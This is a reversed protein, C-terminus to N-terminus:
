AEVTSETGTTATLNVARQVPLHEIAQGFPWYTRTERRYSFRCLLLAVTAEAPVHTVYSNRYELGPDIYGGWPLDRKGITNPFETQQYIRNPGTALQDGPLLFRIELQPRDVRHRVTGKNRVTASVEILRQGRQVRIVELALDMEARPSREQHYVYRYYAWMATGAIAVSTVISEVSAAWGM